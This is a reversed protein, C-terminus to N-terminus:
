VHTALASRNNLAQSTPRSAPKTAENRTVAYHSPPLHATPGSPPPLQSDITHRLYPNGYIASYRPDITDPDGGPVPSVGSPLAAPPNYDRSYNVYPVYGNNNHGDQM